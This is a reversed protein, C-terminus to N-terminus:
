KKYSERLREIKEFMKQYHSGHWYIKKCEECQYFQSYYKATREPLEGLIKAKDIERLLGNCTMCRSFPSIKSVLDFRRIVENLQTEPDTNRLWYGHTVSKHKLLSQDRTLIIRRQTSSIKVIERDGYDNEYLSDFGVMRLLRALKGLNVDIIFRIKRLPAKRLKVVPSIDLSEFVPYVSVRNGDILHYDFGVSNGNVLILDIEPHPVGCAEIADKITPSGSFEYTFSKKQKEKSLFDNLEEYFRFEAQKKSSM